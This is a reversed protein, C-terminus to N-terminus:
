TTASTYVDNGYRQMQDGGGSHLSCSRIWRLLWGDARHCTRVISRESHQQHRVLNRLAHLLVLTSRHNVQFVLYHSFVHKICRVVYEVESETLDVPASSKFIPGLHAFEPIASLKELSVFPYILQRRDDEDTRGNYTNEM